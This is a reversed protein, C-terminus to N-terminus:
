VGCTSAYMSPLEKATPMDEATSARLCVCSGFRYLLRLTTHNDRVDNFMHDIETLVIAETLKCTARRSQCLQKSVQDARQCPKAAPLITFAHSARASSASCDPLSM